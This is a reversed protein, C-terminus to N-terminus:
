YRVTISGVYRSPEEPNDPFRTKVDNRGLALVVTGGPNDTAGPGAVLLRMEGSWKGTAADYVSTVEATRWEGALWMEANEVEVSAEYSISAWERSDKDMTMM